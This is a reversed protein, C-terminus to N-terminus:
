SRLHKRDTFFTLLQLTMDTLVDEVTTASERLQNELLARATTPMAGQHAAENRATVLNDLKSASREVAKYDLGFGEYVQKVVTWSMQNLERRRDISRLTVTKRLATEFPSASCMMDYDVMARLRGIDDKNRWSLLQPAVEGLSMKRANVHKIVFASADKVGGELQAYALVM